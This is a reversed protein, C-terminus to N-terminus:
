PDRKSSFEPFDADVFFHEMADSWASIEDDYPRGCEIDSSCIPHCWTFWYRGALEDGASEIGHEIRYGKSSLLQTLRIFADIPLQHCDNRVRAEHALRPASALLAATAYNPIDRAWVRSKEDMLCLTSTAEHVVILDQRQAVKTSLSKDLGIPMFKATM